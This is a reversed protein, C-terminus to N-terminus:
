VMDPCKESPNDATDTFASCCLPYTVLLTHFGAAYHWAIGGPAHFIPNSIIFQSGQFAGWIERVKLQNSGSVMQTLKSKYGPPLAAFGPFNCFLIELRRQTGGVQQLLSRTQCYRASM